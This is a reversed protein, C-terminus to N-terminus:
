RSSSQRDWAEKLDRVSSAFVCLHKLFSSLCMVHVLVRNYSLSGGVFLPSRTGRQKLIGRQFHLRAGRIGVCM